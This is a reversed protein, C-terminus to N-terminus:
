LLENASAAGPPTTSECIGTELPNRDNWPVGIVSNVAEIDWSSQPELRSIERARSVGGLRIGYQYGPNMRNM